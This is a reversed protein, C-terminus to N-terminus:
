LVILACLFDQPHPVRMGLIVAKPHEAKAKERLHSVSGGRYIEGDAVVIYEGAYKNVLAELHNKLWKDANFKKPLKNKARKIM